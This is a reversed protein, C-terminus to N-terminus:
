PRSVSESSERYTGMRCYWVQAGQPCAWIPGTLTGLPELPHPHLPCVPRPEGVEEILRDQIAIAVFLPLHIEPNSADIEPILRLTGAIYVLATWLEGSRDM